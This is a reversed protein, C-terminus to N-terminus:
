SYYEKIRKVSASLAEAESKFFVQIEGFSGSLGRLYGYERVAVGRNAARIFEQAEENVSRDYDLKKSKSKSM